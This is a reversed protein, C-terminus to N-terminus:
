SRRGRHGVHRLPAFLPLGKNNRDWLTTRPIGTREAWETLTLTEGNHTIKITRKTNRMQLMPSAWRVNGPEYGKTGDIRDLSTGEPRPGVHRLFAMFDDCWEQCMTIGRGGYDEFGFTGPNFCRQKAASWSSYERTRHMGHISHGISLLEATLCGCNTAGQVLNSKAMVKSNGCECICLWYTNQKSSHHYSKVTLGGFQQGSIDKINSNLKTPKEEAM